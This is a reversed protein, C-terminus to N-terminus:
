EICLSLNKSKIEIKSQSIAVTYETPQEKKWFSKVEVRNVFEANEPYYPNDLRNLKSSFNVRSLLVIPAIFDQLWKLTLPLEKSLPISDKVEISREGALLLRFCSRYFTYLASKKRGEFDTFYFMTGDNVFYATSKSKECFIYSQNYANTAVTWKVKEGNFNVNLEKGPKFNFANYILDLCDVNYIISNETPVDGIRLIPKDNTKEFYYGFPYPHTKAGIEPSLQIQFHIHPEPSRGSNGCSALVTGKTVYDGINVTFSDQKLHSIQTFLGNLHNIIITNGWNKNTNVDNIENDKTINSIQYVYGDAPALVPKNYCYFDDKKTGPLSYTKKDNDTIVFDLANGWEGLHTIEGHYGQSVTWEGLFPLKMKFPLDNEFRQLFNVRKYVTKEPNYYQILPFVFFKNFTRHILVYILLITLVSFALTYSSLGSGAIIKEIGAYLLFLVPTLGAVLLYSYINPIIFFSGMAIGWFIFNTGALNATLQQLDFGVIKSVAFACFFGLFAVTSKIRSHILLAVFILIGVLISDTFFISALTKFYYYVLQPLQINDLSHVLGYWPVSMQKALLVTFRDFQTIQEINAFSKFSLDIIFSTIVFPLTLVPLSKKSFVTELWVTLLFSLVIGFIYFLLFSSNLYFKFMLSMGMFVANFGYVGTAIKEKSFGLLHSLLNTIMVAVLGGFGVRVDLMSVILITVALWTQMSFFIQGYSNYTAKLHLNAVSKLSARSRM